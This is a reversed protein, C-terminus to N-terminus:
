IHMHFDAVLGAREGGIKARRLGLDLVNWGTSIRSFIPENM